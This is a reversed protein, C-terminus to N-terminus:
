NSDRACRLKDGLKWHDCISAASEVTPAVWIQATAGIESLRVSSLFLNEDLRPPFAAGAKGYWHVWFMEVINGGDMELKGRFVSLLGDDVPLRHLLEKSQRGESLVAGLRSAFMRDSFWDLEGTDALFERHFRILEPEKSGSVESYLLEAAHQTDVGNLAALCKAPTGAPVDPREMWLDISFGNGPTSEHLHIMYAGGEWFWEKFQQGNETSRRLQVAGCPILEVPM